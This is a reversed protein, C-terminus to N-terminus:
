LETLPGPHHYFLISLSRGLIEHTRSFVDNVMMKGRRFPEIHNKINKKLNAKHLLSLPLLVSTNWPQIFTCCTVMFPM